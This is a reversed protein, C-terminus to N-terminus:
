GRILRSLAKIGRHVGVKIASESLGTLRATESVSMGHLRVYEIPARQREPLQDLLRDIDRRADLSETESTAFLEMEDDIPDHLAERHAQARLFDAVKHRVIAAAWATVPVQNRYTHLGNHLAILVEQLVDEIDDEYSRLRRRLMGRLYGSFVELFSAYAVANGDLALHLLGKLRMEVGCAAARDVPKAPVIVTM